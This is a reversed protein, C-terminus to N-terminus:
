KITIIAGENVAIMAPVYDSYFHIDAVREGIRRACARFGEPGWFERDDTNDCYILGGSRVKKYGELLCLDRPGGDIYLLDLEDAEIRAMVEGRWEYVLDVNTINEDAIIRSLRDCWQQDAEISTLHGVRQGLWITSFGAGIEWARHDPSLWAELAAAAEFPIWPLRPYKGWFKRAVAQLASRGFNPLNRLPVREGLGNEFRKGM